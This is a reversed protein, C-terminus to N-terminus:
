TEIMGTLYPACFGSIAVRDGQMRCFLEGGRASAQFARLESMALKNCWYPVLMTHASGTVPDEDIGHAPMFFRSVCDYGADGAATIILGYRDLQLVKERDLVFQRVADTSDLVAMIFAKDKHVEIVSEGFLNSLDDDSLTTQAAPFDMTIREGNRTIKLPGSHRTEFIIEEAEPIIHNFLVYASALTAHGCLPVEVKPTFWRLDWNGDSRRVPFATEALNNEAAIAQLISDEPYADFLVIAAPNGSFRQTTFADVIYIPVIM